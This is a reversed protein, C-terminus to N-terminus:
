WVELLSPLVDAEQLESTVHVVAAFAIFWFGDVINKRMIRPYTTYTEPEFYAVLRPWIAPTTYRYDLFDVPHRAELRDEECRIIWPYYMAFFLVLIAPIALTESCLGIGIMGVASFLYLPNRCMSYPGIQVLAKTKYGSIFLHCWIRGLTGAAALFTGSLFLLERILGGSPWRSEM